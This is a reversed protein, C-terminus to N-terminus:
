DDHPGQQRSHHETPCPIHRVQYGSGLIPKDRAYHHIIGYEIYNAPIQHLIHLRHKNTRQQYYGRQTKKNKIHLPRHHIRLNREHPYIIKHEHEQTCYSGEVKALGIIFHYKASQTSHANPPPLFLSFNSTLFSSNFTEREKEKNKIEM